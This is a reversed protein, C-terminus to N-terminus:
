AGPRRRRGSGGTQVDFQLGPHFAQFRKGIEAIMPAMTSSGTLRLKGSLQGAPPKVPREEATALQSLGLGLITLVGFVALSSAQREKVMSNRENGM